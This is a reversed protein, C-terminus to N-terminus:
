DHILVLELGHQGLYLRVGIARGVLVRRLLVLCGELGAQFGHAQQRLFGAVPPLHDGTGRFLEFPVLSDSGARCWNRAAVGWWRILRKWRSRCAAPTSLVRAPWTWRPAMTSRPACSLCAWRSM